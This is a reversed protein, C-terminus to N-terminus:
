ALRRRSRAPHGSEQSRSREAFERECANVKSGTGRRVIRAHVVVEGWRVDRPDAADACVRDTMVLAFAHDGFRLTQRVPITAKGGGDDVADADDAAGEVEAECEVLECRQKRLPLVSSRRAFPRPGEGCVPQAFDFMADDLQLVNAIREAPQENVPVFAERSGGASPGRM